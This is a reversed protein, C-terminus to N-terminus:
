GEIPQLVKTSEKQLEPLMEEHPIGLKEEYLLIFELKPKRIGHYHCYASQYPVGAKHALNPTWGYKDFAEKIYNKKM